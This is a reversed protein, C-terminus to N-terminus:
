GDFGGGFTYEGNSFASEAIIKAMEVDSTSFWDLDIDDYNYEGIHDNYSPEDGREDLVLIYTSDPLNKINVRVSDGNCGEVSVYDRYVSLEWPSKEKLEKVSFVSLNRPWTNTSINLGFADKFLKEDTVVGIAIIFSSSSSNSVFGKRTKM